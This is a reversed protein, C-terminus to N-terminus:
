SHMLVFFVVLIPSFTTFFQHYVCKRLLVRRKRQLQVARQKDLKRPQCRECHYIEPIDDRDVGMCDVHQWVRCVFWRVRQRCLLVSVPPYKYSISLLM